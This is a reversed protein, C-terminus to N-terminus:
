DHDSVMMFSFAAPELAPQSDRVLLGTARCRSICQIGHGQKGVNASPHVGREAPTPFEVANAVRGFFRRWRIAGVV